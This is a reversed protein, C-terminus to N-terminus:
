NFIYLKSFLYNLFVIIFQTLIKSINTEVNIFDVLILMSFMDFIGSLLRLGFFLYFEKFASKFTTTKSQFVYKKNTFFAFLIAFLISIANALLYQMNFINVSIFFIGINVGTTLIGFFIYTFLEQHKIYFQKLLDM